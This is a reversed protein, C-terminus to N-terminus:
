RNDILRCGITWPTTHMSFLFLLYVLVQYMVTHVQTYLIYQDNISVIYM